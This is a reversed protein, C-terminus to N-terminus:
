NKGIMKLFEEEGIVTTGNKEAGKMKGNGPNEGAVVYDTVGSVSGTVKGGLSEVLSKAEKRGMSDLTGTIVFKTGDLVGEKEETDAVPDIGGRVQLELILKNNKTNDFWEVIASAMIDGVNEVRSIEEFTADCLADLCKFESALNRAVTKGVHPIGLGYILRPLTVRDEADSIADVIKESSRQGMRDLEKLDEVTLDFLGAVDEIVNREVLQGALKEGMGDIDLAEKSGFHLISQKLRAPCSTNVCRTIADGEPRAADEGCVPCQGPLHYPAEDGTRESKVVKVVHPIVDGAREVIVRDGVRIDKRDVEDQNHLSVNAVEVGAIQVPELRAVPTLAGTRGVQVEIDKIRTTKRRSPFKWAVAWRPNASRFGLKEHASFSDMKFVCGDIEYPLNERGDRISKYWRVAGNPSNFIPMRLVTTKLGLERMMGLCEWQTDPRSSSSPAIEWFFIRLPREATIQPDLQRLSGAAANRPNAFTKEGREELKRNFTEFEGKKMYVEGRVVLHDPPSFEEDERLRLPVENITKVNSTIDEGVQGDGRTAAYSLVGEEYVVEVSCGDFKPEAVIVINEGTEEQCFDYFRHFEEEEQISQLSLMPSEHEIKGLEDLPEAGVRQTPSEPTIISPFHNELEELERKLTDYESDSVSPDNLVYYRYNHQEIENRLSEAKEQAETKNM